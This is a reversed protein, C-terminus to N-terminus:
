RGQKALFKLGGKSSLGMQCTQDFKYHKMLKALQEAEVQTVFPGFVQRNGGDYLAFQGGSASRVKLDEPNFRTSQVSFPVKAPPLGNVLFFTIDANFRCFETARIDQVVRLADRASWESAGFKAIVDTGHVVQYEGKEKRIECKKADIVIREGVFGTGGLDIGTRTLSDEQFSKIAASLGGTGAKINGPMAFFYTLVPTTEGVWGIRNFGYRQAVAAAQEADGRNVGFNLAICTDDRLVWAGRVNEARLTKLDLMSSHKPEYTPVFAEGKTLGYEVVPRGTGIGAWETPRLERMQRVMEEAESQHKGFEHLLTTGAWIQWNENQRRAILAAGDIRVLQEKQPLKIDAKLDVSKREDFGLTPAQVGPRPSNHPTQPFIQPDFGPPLRGPEQTLKPTQASIPFTSLGVVTVLLMRTRM